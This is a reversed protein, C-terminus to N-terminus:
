IYEIEITFEGDYSGPRANSIDIRGGVWFFYKSESGMKLTREAADIPESAGQNDNQNGYMEYHLLLTGVGTSNVIEVIPSFKIRFKADARGKVMMVAANADRQASVYIKGDHVMGMDIEMSKITVLEIESKDIVTAQAKVSVSTTQQAFLPIASLVLLTLFIYRGFKM